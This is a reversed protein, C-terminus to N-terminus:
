LKASSLYRDLAQLFADIDKTQLLVNITQM